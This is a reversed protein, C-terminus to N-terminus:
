IEYDLKDKILDIEAYLRRCNAPERNSGVPVARFQLAYLYVEEIGTLGFLGRKDFTEAKEHYSTFELRPLIDDTKVIIWQNRLTNFVKYNM